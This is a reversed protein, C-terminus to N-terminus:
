FSTSWSSKSTQCVIVASQFTLRLSQKSHIHFLDSFTLSPEWPLVLSWHLVFWRLTAKAPLLSFPVIRPHHTLLLNCFEAGPSVSSACTCFPLKRLPSALKTSRQMRKQIKDIMRTFVPPHKELGHRASLFTYLLRTVFGIGCYLMCIFGKCFWKWFTVTSIFYCCFRLLLSTM